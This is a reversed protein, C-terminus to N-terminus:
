GQLPLTVKFEVGDKTNRAEISGLMSNEIIMKTMYLGIGTGQKEFKTTFYPEFMRDMVETKIKEGNNSISIEYTDTGIKGVICIIGKFGKNKEKKQFIADKANSVINLIAQKFENEFSKLVFDEVDIEIILDKKELKTSTIEIISYLTEKIDFKSKKKVPKYFNRFDDITHSMYEIQKKGKDLYDSIMEKNLKKNDFNDRVFHLILSINNLPQRWQHAIAGIMEGMAALKNQQVLLRDKAINKDVEEKVRKELERESQKIATIEYIYGYLDTVNGFDDKIFLAHSFVWRLSNSNGDKIRYTSSFSELGNQIHQRLSELVSKLDDEYIIDKYMMSRQLLDDPVYGFKSISQSVFTVTLNKDNLWRFLVIDGEEVLRWTDELSREVRKRKTINMAMMLLRDPNGNKDFFIKGRSLIWKYRNLKTKVRYEAIFHDVRNNRHEDMKRIVSARDDKHILKLWEDYSNIDSRAYGFMDLWTNSFFIKGSKFNIDWLGDNTAIIALEYREKWKELLMNKTEFRKNYISFIKKIFNAFLVSAFVLIFTFILITITITRKKRKFELEIKRKQAFYKDMTLNKDTKIGVGFSYKQFNHFSIITSNKNGGKSALSKAMLQERPLMSSLVDKLSHWEKKNFYNYLYRDSYDYFYFFKRRKRSSINGISTFFNKATFKKLNDSISFAGILWNQNKDYEFYNVQITQKLENKWYFSSKDGQSYIYLLTLYLSKPNNYNNFILKQIDKITDLGYLVKLDDKKFIVFNIGEEFEKKKLISKLSEIDINSSNLSLGQIVGKIEHVYLIMSKEVDKFHLNVSNINKDIFSQLKKSNEYSEQLKSKQSILDLKSKKNFDLIFFSIALSTISLVLIFFIPFYILIKEIDQLKYLHRSKKFM